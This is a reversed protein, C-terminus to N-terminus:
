AGSYITVYCDVSFQERLKTGPVSCVQLEAWDAAATQQGLPLGAAMAWDDACRRLTHKVWSGAHNDTERSGHGVEVSGQYSIVRSFENLRQLLCNVKCCM